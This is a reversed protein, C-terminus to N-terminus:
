RGPTFPGLGPPPNGKSRLSEALARMVTMAQLDLHPLGTNFLAYPGATVPPSVTSGERRAIIVEIDDQGKHLVIHIVGDRLGEIVTVRWGAVDSGETLPALFSRIEPTAPERRIDLRVPSREGRGSSQSGRRLFFGSLFTVLVVVGAVFWRVAPSQLRQALANEDKMGVHEGAYWSEMAMSPRYSGRGMFTTM